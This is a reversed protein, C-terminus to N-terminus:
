SLELADRMRDITTDDDAVVVANMTQPGKVGDQTTGVAAQLWKVGRRM